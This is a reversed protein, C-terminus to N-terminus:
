IRKEDDADEGWVMDEQAAPPSGNNMCVNSCALTNWTKDTCYERYYYKYESGNQLKGSKECLGFDTCKEDTACCQSHGGPTKPPCQVWTRSDDGNLEIAEGASVTLQIDRSTPVTSKRGLAREDRGSM